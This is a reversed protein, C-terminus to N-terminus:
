FPIDDDDIEEVASDKQQQSQQPPTPNTPNSQYHGGQNGYSENSENKPSLFQVTNAIITHKSRKQGNQDVWSDLNLRGDVLVKSGKRIYQSAVEAARAFVTIDVYCVIDKDEGTNKDKRRENVALGFNGIAMGSQTYKLEVDRTLNGVLVVKNYM